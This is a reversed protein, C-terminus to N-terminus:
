GSDSKSSPWGPKPRGAALTRCPARQHAELAEDEARDAHGGDGGGGEGLSQGGDGAAPHQGSGRHDLVAGHDDLVAPDDRDPGAGCGRTGADDVGAALDHRGAEDRDVAAEASRFDGRDGARIVQGVAGVGDAGREVDAVAKVGPGEGQRDRAEAADGAGDDDGAMGAAAAATVGVIVAIEGADPSATQLRRAQECTLRGDDMQRGPGVDQDLRADGHDRGEALGPGADGAASAPGLEGLELFGQGLDAEVGAVAGGIVAGAQAVEAQRAGIQLGQDRDGVAGHGQDDRHAARGVDLLDQAEGALFPHLDDEVTGLLAPQDGGLDRGGVDRDQEIRDGVQRAIELGAGAPHLVGRGQVCRAHDDGDLAIVAGVPDALGAVVGAISDRM